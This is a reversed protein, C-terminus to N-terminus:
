VNSVFGCLIPPDVASVILLRVTVPTASVLVLAIPSVTEVARAPVPSRVLAVFAISFILPVDVIVVSSAVAL